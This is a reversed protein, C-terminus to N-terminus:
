SGTRLVTTLREPCCDVDSVVHSNSTVDFVV